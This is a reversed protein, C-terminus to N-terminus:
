KSEMRKRSKKKPIYNPDKYKFTYGNMQAAIGRLVCGPNTKLARLVETQSKYEGIFEGNSLRYALVPICNKDHVKSM